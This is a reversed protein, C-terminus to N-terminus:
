SCDAMSAERLGTLLRRAMAAGKVLFKLLAPGRRPTAASSRCSQPEGAAASVEESCCNRTSTTGLLPRWVDRVRPLSTLTMTHGAKASLIDSPSILHSFATPSETETSSTSQSISVSLVLTGTGDGTLPTISSSSTSSPDVTDGPVLSSLSLTPAPPPDAAGALFSAAAAGGGAAAAGGGGGGGGGGAAAAAAAGMGAVGGGGGARGAAGLAVCGGGGGGGARGAAPGPAAGTTRSGGASGVLSIAPVRDSCLTM